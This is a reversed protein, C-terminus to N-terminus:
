LVFQLFKANACMKGVQIFHDSLHHSIGIWNRVLHGVYYFIPCRLFLHYTSEVADCGAVCLQFDPRLLNDKTPIMNCLLRWTFLTIKLLVKKHWIIDPLTFHIPQDVKSLYINKFIIYYLKTRWFVIRTSQITYHRAQSHLPQVKDKFYTLMATKEVSEKIIM